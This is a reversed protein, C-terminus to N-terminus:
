SFLEQYNKWVQEQAADVTWGRLEALCEITGVVNAPENREGRVPGLYPADTETLIREPPLMRLM